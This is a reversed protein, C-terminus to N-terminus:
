PPGPLPSHRESFPPSVQARSVESSGAALVSGLRMPTATLADEGAV